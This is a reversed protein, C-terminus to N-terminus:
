EASRLALEPKWGQRPISAILRQTYPHRPNDFVEASYGSEVVEGRRMVIVREGMLRAVGLDHTVFVYSVNLEARLANILQLVRWQTSVDLASVAEDLVLVSPRVALARAVAVRQREGGSLEHPLSGRLDRRLGVADLLEDIRGSRSNAAAPDYSRLVEDLCREVSLRPDLSLYPDQFVMQLAKARAAREGGRAAGILSRGDLEIRGRDPRELGTLMRAVTSKGSGSEGVISLTSGPADLRFGVDAVATFVRNGAADKRRLRFTKRLGEVVLQEPM